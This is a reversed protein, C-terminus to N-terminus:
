NQNLKPNWMRITCDMSGSLMLGNTPCNSRIFNTQHSLSCVPGLHGVYECNKKRSAEEESSHLNQQFIQWDFTCIYVLNTAGYPVTMYMPATPYETDEKGKFDAMTFTM